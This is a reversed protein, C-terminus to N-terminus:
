PCQEEFSSHWMFTLEHKNYNLHLVKANPIQEFQNILSWDIGGQLKITCIINKTMGSSIWKKIWGLLREPYCIVDSLVWDFTGLEEPELTFADHALFKVLPNQMLSDALPSRDVAFVKAGLNVLTWTWGGPCAGADFCHSKESPLETGYFHAFRCLAEEIKLYARSPPNEHDEVLSLAGAPLPSSTKASALITHEDLLTYIGIPSKPISVPFDRPKLNVHPLKEQILSARRFCTFQYPAWSRQIGKLASAAEGISNFHLIFPELFVTRCWYPIQDPINKADPVLLDGYETFSANLGFRASFEERLLPKWDPFSLYAKSNFPEISSPM